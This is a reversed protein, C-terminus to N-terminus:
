KSRGDNRDDDEIIRMHLMEQYPAIDMLNPMGLAEDLAM